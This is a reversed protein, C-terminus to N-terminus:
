DWYAHQPEREDTDKALEPMRELLRACANWRLFADDNGHERVAEAQDYREMARHLWDGVMSTHGGEQLKARAWRECAIGGYYAREYEGTMRNVLREADEFTTGRRHGFQETCALFLTRLADGNGPDVALIDDCISAAQEPENLLRYREALELARPAAEKSIQKLQKM